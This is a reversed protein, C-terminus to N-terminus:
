NCPWVALGEVVQQRAVIHWCCAASTQALSHPTGALNDTDFLLTTEGGCATQDHVLMLSSGSPLTSERSSIVYQGHNNDGVCLFTGEIHPTLGTTAYIDEALDRTVSAAHRTM